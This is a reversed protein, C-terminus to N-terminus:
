RVVRTRPSCCTDTRAATLTTRGCPAGGQGRSCVLVPGLRRVLGLVVFGTSRPDRWLYPPGRRDTAPRGRADRAGLVMQDAVGAADRQRDRQGAAVAVVDGLQDRQDVRNRRNPSPAASGAALRPLQEGVAAIVVVLVPAQQAGTADRRPEGPAAGNVAGPEASVAPDDLAAEGPQVGELPQAGPVLV